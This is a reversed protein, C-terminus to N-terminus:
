SAMPAVIRLTCAHQEPGYSTMSLSDDDLRAKAYVGCRSTTKRYTSPAPQAEVQLGYIDAAAGPEFSLGFSVSEEASQNAGSLALRAWNASLACSVTGEADPTSRFLVIRAASESRAYLSFCYCFWGPAHIMQLIRQSAAGTNSIRTAATGGNPDAVGASLALM